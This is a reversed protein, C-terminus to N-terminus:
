LFHQHIGAKKMMILAKVNNYNDILRVIIKKILWCIMQRRYFHGFIESETEYVVLFFSSYTFKQCKQKLLSM